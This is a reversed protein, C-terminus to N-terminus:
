QPQLLDLQVNPALVDHVNEVLRGLKLATTARIDRSSSGVRFTYIGADAVWASQAEVFSALWQKDVTMTLTESEGPQLLRTKAFAKLEQAPKAIDGKPATVYVQAVEKGARTGTNTVTVSLIVSKGREKATLDSFGFTTYSLGFGFPYAVPKDFSDFYRYGVYIGEEYETYGVNRRKQYGKKNGDCEDYGNLPFNKASPADRVDVPFTMPLKGSPVAKGSLMDAVIDGFEQGCQWPVLIADPVDRWSATEVVGGINLVVVTKKGLKHFAKTIDRVMQQECEQLYFDPAMRDEGEGSLRQLTIVAMDNAEATKAIEDTSFLAERYVMGGPSTRIQLAKKVSASDMYAAYTDALDSDVMYGCDRMGDLLSRTYARNVDGSGTGGALPKYSAIGYLAVRKVDAALPLAGDNKLLVTGESGTARTLAAHAKLDPRDSHKYGRFHPLKVVMELVRKVNQDLVKESLRGSKVAEELTKEDAARGPLIFDNGAKMNAVVDIKNDRWVPDYGADWDTMVMGKFGWEDRLITTLLDYRESTMVGNVKNYTSMVTWPNSKKIAIEFNRLYLERAARQSVRADTGLRQTEQNNFCFHKLAAGIGQSQLGNIYAGVMLGSLVPDESYYEFNRGCLLNRMLNAGPALLVDNGYELSENGIAAGIRSVAEDSWTSALFTGIPFHTCYYTLTDGGRTPPIRLGAPGDCFVIAPIGLRPIAITCTASGPLLQDTNNPSGDHSGMVMMVKEKLTMAKVVKDINNVTLQPATQATTGLCLVAACLTIWIRKM